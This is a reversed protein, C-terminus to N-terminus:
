LWCGQYVRIELLEYIRKIKLNKGKWDKYSKNGKEQRIVSTFHEPVINFLLSPLVFWQTGSLWPFVKLM